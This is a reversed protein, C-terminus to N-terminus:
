PTATTAPITAGQASAYAVKCNVAGMLGIDMLEAQTADLSLVSINELLGTSSSNFDIATLTMGIFRCDKVLVGTDTKDSRIGAEDLDTSSLYNFTCGDVTWDVCNGSGQLDIACNPGVATGLFLCDKFHFRDYGGTVIVGILPAEAQELVCGECMFDHAAVSILSTVGSAAGVLRLNNISVNAATVDILDTAATTATFAPRARGRGLGIITIGAVDAAIATTTEAHGPMVIITDGQSATCKGIAYDLTSFPQSKDTGSNSNSGGDDVFYVNGTTMTGGSGLVPMGMSSIGHPFRSRTM